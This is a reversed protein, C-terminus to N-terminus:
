LKLFGFLKNEIYIPRYKWFMVYCKLIGWKNILSKEIWDKKFVEKVKM